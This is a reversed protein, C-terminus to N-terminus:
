ESANVKARAAREAYDQKEDEDLQDLKWKQIGDGPITVSEVKSLAESLSVSKQDSSYPDMGGRGLKVPEVFPVGDRDAYANPLNSLVSERAGLATRLLELAKAADQTRKSIERDAWKRYEESAFLEEYAEDLKIRSDHAVKAGVTIGNELKTLLKHLPALDEHDVPEPIDAGAEVARTLGAQYEAEDQSRKDVAAQFAILEAEHDSLSKQVFSLRKDLEQGLVKVGESDTEHSVYGLPLTPAEFPERFTPDKIARLEAELRHRENILDAQSVSQAGYSLDPVGDLPKPLFSDLMEGNNYIM